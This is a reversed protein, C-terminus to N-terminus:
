IIALLCHIRAKIGLYPMDWYVPMTTAVCWRPMASSGSPPVDAVLIPLHVCSNQPLPAIGFHRM